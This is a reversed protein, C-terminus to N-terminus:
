EAASDDEETDAHQTLLSELSEIMQAAQEQVEPSSERLREVIGQDTFTTRDENVTHREQKSAKPLGARDLIESAASLIYKSDSSTRMVDVIAQVAEIMYGQLLDLAAQPLAQRIEVIRESIDPRDLIQKIQGKSVGIVKSMQSRTYGALKLVVITDEVHPVEAPLLNRPKNLNVKYKRKVHAIERKADASRKAPTVAKRPM